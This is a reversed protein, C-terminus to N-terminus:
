RGVDDDSGDMGAETRGCSRLEGAERHARVLGVCAGVVEAHFCFEARAQRSLELRARWRPARRNRRPAPAPLVDGPPVTTTARRM